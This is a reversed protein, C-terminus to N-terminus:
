GVKVAHLSSYGRHDKMVDKTQSTLRQDGSRAEAMRVVMEIREWEKLKRATRQKAITASTGRGQQGAAQKKKCTKASNRKRQDVKGEGLKAGEFELAHLLMRGIAEYNSEDPQTKMPLQDSDVSLRCGDISLQCSDVTKM